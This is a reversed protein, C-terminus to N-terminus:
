QRTSQITEKERNKMILNAIYHGNLFADETSAVDHDSAIYVHPEPHQDIYLDGKFYLAPQWTDHAIVEYNEFYQDINDTKGYFYLYTGDHERSIAAEEEIPFFNYWQVDYPPKITGRVHYYSVDIGGKTDQPTVLTNTITMPTALVVTNCTYETGAKTTITVHQGTTTVSTVVTDTIVREKFPAILKEFDFVFSYSPTILTLLVALFVTSSVERPDTFYAAWLFQELYEKTFAELNHRKIFESAKEHYLQRLFPDSEILEQYSRDMAQARLKRVRTRFKLLQRILRIAAPIHKLIRPSYAHYHETGRHFHAKGFHVLNMRQVYPAITTFDNIIFYAGYNVQGDPSTKVRGGIDKSLVLFDQEKEHLQKACGLGNLGAGIIIIDHHKTTPM